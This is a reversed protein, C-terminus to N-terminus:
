MYTCRSEAPTDAWLEPADCVDFHWVVKGSQKNTHKATVDLPPMRISADWTGAKPSQEWEPTHDYTPAGLPEIATVHHPSMGWDLARVLGITAVGLCISLKM